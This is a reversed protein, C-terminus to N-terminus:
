KDSYSFDVCWTTENLNQRLLEIKLQTNIKKNRPSIIKMRSRQMIIVPDAANIKVSRERACNLIVGDKVSRERACNLIEQKLIIDHPITGDVCRMHLIIPLKYGIVNADAKAPLSLRDSSEDQIVNHAHM